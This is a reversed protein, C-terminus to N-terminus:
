IGLIAVAQEKDFKSGDIKIVKEDKRPPELKSVISNFQEDTMEYMYGNRTEPAHVSRQRAVENPTTLWIIVVEAGAEEAIQRLKQRDDYFNFNTDFVVSQGSKLLEEAKQNLYDYLRMSEARSHTPRDFLKHRERDAWLHAAGTREAILKAITTKGAGPAGIFLYLIPRNM